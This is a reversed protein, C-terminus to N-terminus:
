YQASADRLAILQRNRSLRALARARIPGISGIPITLLESVRSYTVGPQTALMTMLERHREPLTALADALANRREAALVAAAPDDPVPHDGLGPDDSVIERVRRQLIRMANRRTSTALWGAICAPERIREIDELLSLWTAQVADDVDAHDLRYSRAIARLGRDFRRVLSTWAAHDGSRAACV